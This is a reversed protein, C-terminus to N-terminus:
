LIACTPRILRERRMRWHRPAIAPHSAQRTKDPRCSQVHLASLANVGCGGTARHLQRICRKSSKDPRC